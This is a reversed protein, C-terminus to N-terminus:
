RPFNVYWRVLMFGENVRSFVSINMCMNGSIKSEMFGIIM